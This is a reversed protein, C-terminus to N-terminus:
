QAKNNIDTIKFLVFQIAVIVTILVLRMYQKSHFGFYRAYDVPYGNYNSSLWYYGSIEM